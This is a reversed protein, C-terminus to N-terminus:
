RVEERIYDCVQARFRARHDEQVPLAFAESAADLIDDLCVPKQLLELTRTQHSATQSGTLATLAIEVLQPVSDYPFPQCLKGLRSSQLFAKAFDKPTQARKLDLVRPFLFDNPMLVELRDVDSLAFATFLANSWGELYARQRAPASSALFAGRCSQEKVSWINRVGDVYGWAIMRLVLEDEEIKFTDEQPSPVLILEFIDTQVPLYASLLRDIARM